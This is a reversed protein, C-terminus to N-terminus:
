VSIATTIKEIDARRIPKSTYIVSHHTLSKFNEAKDMDFQDISSTVINITVKKNIPLKIFEEMFEWGDMIPMNIDLFILDPLESKEIIMEKIRDLAMQGNKFEFIDNCTAVSTLIKKIGYITITDDDVIFISNIKTM